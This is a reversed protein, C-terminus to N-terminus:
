EYYGRQKSEAILEAVGAQCACAKCYKASCVFDGYNEKPYVEGCHSCYFLEDPNEIVQKAKEHAEDLAIFNAPCHYNMYPLKIATGEDRIWASIQGGDSLYFILHPYQAQLISSVTRIYQDYLISLVNTTTM